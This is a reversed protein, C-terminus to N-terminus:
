LYKHEGLIVTGTRGEMLMRSSQTVKINVAVKHIKCKLSFSVLNFKEKHKLKTVKTGLTKGWFINSVEVATCCVCFIGPDLSAEKDCAQRGLTRTPDHTFAAFVFEGKQFRHESTALPGVTASLMRPTRATTPIAGEGSILKMEAGVGM